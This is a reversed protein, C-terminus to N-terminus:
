VRWDQLVFETARQEINLPTSVVVNRPIGGAVICTPPFCAALSFQPASLALYTRVVTVVDATSVAVFQAPSGVANSRTALSSGLEFFQAYAASHRAWKDSLSSFGSKASFDWDLHGPQPNNWVLGLETLLESRGAATFASYFQGVNQYRMFLFDFRDRSDVSGEAPEDGLNSKFTEWFPPVTGSFVADELATGPVDLDGNAMFARLREAILIRSNADDGSMPLWSRRLVDVIQGSNWICQAAWVLRSVTQSYDGLLFRTGLSVEPFEGFQSLVALQSAPLKLESSAIPSFDLQPLGMNVHAHVTQQALGLLFVASIQRCFDAESVGTHARFEVYRPNKKYRDYFHLGQDALATPSYAFARDRSPEGAGTAFVVPFRGPQPVPDSSAGAAFAAAKAPSAPVGSVSSAARRAAREAKGPKSKKQPASSVSDNPGLSSM